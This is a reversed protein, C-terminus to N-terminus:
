FIYIFFFFSSSTLEDFLLKIIGSFYNFFPIVKEVPNEEVSQAGKDSPSTALFQDSQIDGQAHSHTPTSSQQEIIAPDKLRQQQDSPNPQTVDVPKEGSPTSNTSHHSSSEDALEKLM